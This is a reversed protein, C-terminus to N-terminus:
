SKHATACLGTFLSSCSSREPADLKLLLPIVIAGFLRILSAKWDAIPARHGCLQIIQALSAYWGGQKRVDIRCFGAVSLIKQLGFPTFRWFDNPADHLPWLFPASVFLFGGPQLVRHIEKLTISPEPCHELVETSLASGFVCDEFPIVTGDWEVDAAYGGYPGSYLDLGIYSHAGKAGNLILERYPMNGCGVDLVDGWFANLNRRIAREISEPYYLRPDGFRLDTQELECPQKM